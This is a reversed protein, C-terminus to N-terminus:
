DGPGNGVWLYSGPRRQLMFAFDEGGMCPRPDRDVNATGAVDGAAEASWDTERATNVTAPYRREYRLSGAAGCAACVGQVVRALAAEATEQVEPRFTRVTGRLIAQPPIVNWTDGAHFQTVSIVLQDLPDTNRSAITQLAMVMQSATVIPDIGLHPMAAH